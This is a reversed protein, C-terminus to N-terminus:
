RRYVKAFGTRTNVITFRGDDSATMRLAFSTMTGDDVNTIFEDPANEVGQNQSRHLQWLDITPVTRVARFAMAHGGKVLGNNMIAARPNLAAYVAPVSTDYDGHHSILYVSLPGILNKPCAMRTLTNGSL